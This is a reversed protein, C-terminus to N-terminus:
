RSSAVSRVMPKFNCVEPHYQRKRLSASTTATPSGDYDLGVKSSRLPRTLERANSSLAPAYPQQQVSRSSLVCVSRPQIHPLCQVSSNAKTCGLEYLTAEHRCQRPHPNAALSGAAIGFAGHYLRTFTWDQVYACVDIGDQAFEHKINFLRMGHCHLSFWPCCFQRWGMCIVQPPQLVVRTAHGIAVRM